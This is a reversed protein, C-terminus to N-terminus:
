WSSSSGGGSFDGGSFSSSGSDYSSSSSSYSDSSSSSAYAAATVIAAAADEEEQRQRRAADEQRQIEAYHADKESQVMKLINNITALCTTYYLYKRSYQETSELQNEFSLIIGPIANTKDITAQSIYSEATLIEAISAQYGAFTQKYSNVQNVKDISAQLQKSILQYSQNSQDIANKVWRLYTAVDNLASDFNDANAGLGVNVFDKIKTIYDEIKNNKVNFFDLNVGTWFDAYNAMNNKVSEQLKIKLNNSNAVFDSNHQLFDEADNHLQTYKQAVDFVSNKEFDILALNLQTTASIYDTANSPLGGDKQSKLNRNIETYKDMMSAFLEKANPIIGVCNRIVNISASYAKASKNYDFTAGSLLNSEREKRKKRSVFFIIIGTICLLGFGIYELVVITSQKSQAAIEAKKAEAIKRQELSTPGLHSIYDSLLAKLGGGYDGNRILPIADNQQSLSTFDDTLDGELGTGVETRLGHPNMSLLIMVGQNARSGVGWRRALQITFDELSKGNLDPVTVVTFEVETKEKYDRIMQDMDQADQPSIIKAFDNVYSTPSHALNDQAFMLSPLLILFILLLKRM